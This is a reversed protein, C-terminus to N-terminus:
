ESYNRDNVILEYFSKTYIQNTISENIVTKFDKYNYDNFPTSM